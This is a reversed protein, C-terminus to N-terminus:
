PYLHRDYDRTAWAVTFRNSLVDKTRARDTTHNRIGRRQGHCIQPRTSNEPCPRRQGGEPCSPRPRITGAEAGSVDKRAVWVYDVYPESTYFVRVKTSDLKGSAILFDFVTKDIAGADVAGNAVLAATALHSGSYRFKLDSQPDIGAKNLEHYAMLHASTSNIDGFAFQKGKLDRLSFISSGTATIFITHYQLDTARQVLPIVGYKARARIYVLAGLCAFDYSGDALADVTAGYNDPSAIIVPRGMAKTLYVQLPARDEQNSGDIVVGVNIPRDAGYLSTGLCCIVVLVAATRARSLTAKGNDEARVDPEMSKPFTKKVRTLRVEQCVPFREEDIGSHPCSIARLTRSRPFGNYQREGSPFRVTEDNGPHVRGM